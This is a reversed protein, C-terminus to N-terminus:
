VAVIVAWSSSVVGHDCGAAQIAANTVDMKRWAIGLEGFFEGSPPTRM